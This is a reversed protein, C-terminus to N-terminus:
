SIFLPILGLTPKARATPRLRVPSKIILGTSACTADDVGSAAVVVDFISEVPNEVLVVSTVVAEEVADRKLAEEPSDTPSKTTRPQNMKAKTNTTSATPM